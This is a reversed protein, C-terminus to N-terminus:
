VKSLLWKYLHAIYFNFWMLIFGFLAILLGSPVDRTVMQYIGLLWAFIITAGMAFLSISPLVHVIYSFWDSTRRSDKWIQEAILLGSKELFLTNIADLM